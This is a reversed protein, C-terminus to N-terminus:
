HHVLRSPYYSCFAPIHANVDFDSGVCLTAPPIHIHTEEGVYSFGSLHRCHLFLPFKKIGRLIGHSVLCLNQGREFSLLHEFFISCCCHVLIHQIQPVEEENEGTNRPLTHVKTEPKKSEWGWAYKCCGTTEHNQQLFQKSLSVQISRPRQSILIHHHKPHKTNM